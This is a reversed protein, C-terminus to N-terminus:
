LPRRALAPDGSLDQVNPIAQFVVKPIAVASSLPVAPADPTAASAVSDHPRQVTKWPDPLLIMERNPNGHPVTKQFRRMM